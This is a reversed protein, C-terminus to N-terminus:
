ESMGTATSSQDAAFWNLRPPACLLYSLSMIWSIKSWVARVTQRLTRTGREEHM